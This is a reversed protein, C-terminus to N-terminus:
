LEDLEVQFLAWILGDLTGDDRMGQDGPMSTGPAFSQPDLLFQKLTKETWVGKKSKLADSYSAYASGGILRGKLGYLSPASTHNAQQFSHCQNCGQLRNTVNAAIPADFKKEVRQVVAALPDLRPETTLLMLRCDDLWVAVQGPGFNAVYRIRHGIRIREVFVARNDRIRIRFLSLGRQGQALSGALLDGDWTPHFDEVTMLSSVGQSPLWAYIPADYTDHFGTPGPAPFPLGNYLTGLTELPWGYNNGEIILNLEDGGRVGHETTWIQGARDITIGQANRIGKALHRSVGSVIDIEVVKGYDVDDSQVGVDHAHVGDLHYDGNTLILKSPGRLAMRGGAMMGHLAIWDTNLPLCPQSQYLVAWDDAGVSLQKIDAVSRPIPLWSVRNGYCVKERDFFTYSLAIGHAAETDVYQIDNFRFTRTNHTYNKYAETKSLETYASLGNEPPTIKTKGVRGNNKYVYITGSKHLILLQDNWVTLAGGSAKEAGPVDVFRGRLRVFTSEIVEGDNLHVSPSAGLVEIKDAVGSAFRNFPDIQYKHSFYGFLSSLIVTCLIFIVAMLSSLYIHRASWRAVARSSASVTHFVRHSLRPLSAFIRHLVGM